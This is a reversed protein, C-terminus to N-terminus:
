IESATRVAQAAATRADRNAVIVVRPLQRVEAVAQADRPATVSVKPLQVVAQPEIAERQATVFVTPLHIVAQRAIPEGPAALRDIGALEMGTAFVSAIAILLVMKISTSTNM